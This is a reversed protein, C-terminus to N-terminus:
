PKKPRSKPNKIEEEFKEIKTPSSSIFNIHRLVLAATKEMSLVGFSGSIFSSPYGTVGDLEISLIYQNNVASEFKPRLLTDLFLEGSYDGEYVYRAGPRKTFDQAININDRIEM